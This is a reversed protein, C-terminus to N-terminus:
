ETSEDTLDNEADNQADDEEFVEPDSPDVPMIPGKERRPAFWRDQALFGSSRCLAGTSWGPRGGRGAGGCRYGIVVVVLLGHRRLPVQRREAGHGVRVLDAGGPLRGLDVAVGRGVREADAWGM